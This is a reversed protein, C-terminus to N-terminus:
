DLPVLGDGVERDAGLNRDAAGDLRRRGPLGVVQGAEADPLHKSGVANAWGAPPAAAGDPDEVPDSAAGVRGQLASRGVRLRREEASEQQALVVAEVRLRDVVELARAKGM